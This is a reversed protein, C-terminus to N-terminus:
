AWVDLGPANCANIEAYRAVIRASEALEASLARARDAKIQEDKAVLAVVDVSRRAARTIENQATNATNM